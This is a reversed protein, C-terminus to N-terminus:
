SGQIIRKHIRARSDRQARAQPFIISSPPKGQLEDPTLSNNHVSDVVSKKPKCWFAANVNETCANLKARTSPRFTQSLFNIVLGFYVSHDTPRPSGAFSRVRFLRSSQSSAAPALVAFATIVDLATITCSEVSSAGECSNAALAYGLDRGKEKKALNGLNGQRSRSEGSERRAFGKWTRKRPRTCSINTGRAKPDGKKRSRV